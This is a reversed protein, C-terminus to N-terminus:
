RPSRLRSAEEATIQLFSGHKCGPPFTMKDTVPTWHELDTSAVAEYRNPPRYHDYYVIYHGDVKLASPGESWSETFPESINTWPGELSAGSASKIYKNLPEKREDKFILYYRGKATLITADIVDYGPDFFIAPASFTRFDKTMARYIRNGAPRGPVTSSWIVIWQSRAQDWYIEPAWVNNTGPVDAMLPIERQESWHVLDKSHAYGIRQTRWGWTWVLHFEGEGGRTLFPDRMLEGAHQPPIWPQDGKLPEWHYGDDSLAYYVGSTAPERFYVFLWTGFAPVAGPASM